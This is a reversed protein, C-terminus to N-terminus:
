HLSSVVAVRRRTEAARGARVAERLTKYKGQVQDPTILQKESFVSAVEADLADFAAADFKLVAAGGSGLPNDDKANILILIPTHDPHAASWAKITHLCSVFLVCTSRFDFDPIHMVKFGPKAFEAAM